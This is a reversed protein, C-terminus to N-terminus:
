TQQYGDGPVQHSVLYIDKKVIQGSVMRDVNRGFLCIINQKRM